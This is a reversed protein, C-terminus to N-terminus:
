EFFVLRPGSDSEKISRKKETKIENRIRYYKKDNNKMKGEREGEYTWNM